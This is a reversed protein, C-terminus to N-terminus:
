LFSSDSVVGSKHSIEVAPLEKAVAVELADFCDRWARVSDSHKDSQVELHMQVLATAHYFDKALSRVSVLGLLAIAYAQAAASAPSEAAPVKQESDIPTRQIDVVRNQAQLVWSWFERLRSEHLERRRKTESREWQLAEQQVTREAQKAAARISVLQAAIAGFLTGGASIFAVWVIETM